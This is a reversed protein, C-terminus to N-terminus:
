PLGIFGGQRGTPGKSHRYSYFREPYCFTCEEATWIHHEPINVSLAQTKNASPLDLCLKGDREMHYEGQPESSGTERVVAELVDRGVGYCCWKIAPGTAMLIDEPRCSFTEQMTTVTKKLVGNATGKWGAHVAAIIQRARDYLLIPVCDAVQVGILIDARDTIVADATVPGLDAKLITIDGTHEQVPMYVRRHVVPEIDIGIERGTFFGMVHGDFIEPFIMDDM